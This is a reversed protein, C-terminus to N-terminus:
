ALSPAEIYLRSIVIIRRAKLFKPVEDRKLLHRPEPHATGTELTLLRLRALAGAAMVTCIRPALESMTEAHPFGYCSISLAHLGRPASALVDVLGKRSADLHLPRVGIGLRQLRPCMRIFAALTTTVCAAPTNRVDLMTLQHSQTMRSTGDMSLHPMMREWNADTDSSLLDWTDTALTKLAFKSANEMIREAVFHDGIDRVHAVIRPEYGTSSQSVYQLTLSQATRTLISLRFYPNAVGMSTIEQWLSQYFSATTHPDRTLHVVLANLQDSTVETLALSQVNSCLAILHHLKSKSVAASRGLISHRIALLRACHAVNNRADLITLLAKFTQEDEVVISLPSCHM